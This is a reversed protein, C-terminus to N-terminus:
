FVLRLLLAIGLGIAVGVGVIWVLRPQRREPPPASPGEGKVFSQHLGRPSSRRRAVYARPLQRGAESRRLPMTGLVPRSLGTPSRRRPIADAGILAPEPTVEPSQSPRQDATRPPPEVHKAVPPGPSPPPGDLALRLSHDVVPSLARPPEHERVRARAGEPSVSGTAGSCCCGLSVALDVLARSASLLQQALDVIVDAGQLEVLDVPASLQRLAHRSPVGGPESFYRRRDPPIVSDFETPQTSASVGREALTSMLEDVSLWVDITDSSASPCGGAYTLHPRSPAYAARLYQATAVPPSVFSALMPAIANGHAALRRTVYPCSCQVLPVDADRLREIVRSAILEDGWSVPIVAHFGAALCAHALQVPTAPAAALVADTGLILLSPVTTPVVPAFAARADPLALEPSPWSRLVVDHGV